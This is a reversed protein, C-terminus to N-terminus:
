VGAHSPFSRFQFPVRGEIRDRSPALGFRRKYTRTFQVASGFGCAAAVDVIPLETQTVLGRARDLRVDVYYRVPSVGTHTRFLRELQRQSLGLQSVIAGITLPQELNREMLVIADRLRAPAAYGVPERTTPLQGEDGSRLREHFIYRGAANAVDLGQQLRIIELAMDAAAMGGCCTLRDRDFVFLSEDMLSDPFLERFAAIHEYHVAARYGSLLGAQALVFAGTDIACMVVGQRSLRRLWGQLPQTRFQEPNWSANVVLFDLDWAAGAAAMPITKAITLGNSATVEGGDLSLIPWDYATAARLYNAARFPDLFANAAMSNFGPLLLMGIRCSTGEEEAREDRDFNGQLM